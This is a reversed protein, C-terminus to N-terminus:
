LRAGTTALPPSFVRTAVRADTDRFEGAGGGGDVGAVCGGIRAWVKRAALRADDENKAGTVVLKGSFFILATAKPERLRM